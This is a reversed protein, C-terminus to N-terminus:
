CKEGSRLNGRMLYNTSLIPPPLAATFVVLFHLNHCLFINTLSSCCSKYKCFYTIVSSLKQKYCYPAFMILSISNCTAIDNLVNLLIIFTIM